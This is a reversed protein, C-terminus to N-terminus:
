MRIPARTDFVLNDNLIRCSEYYNENAIPVVNRRSPSPKQISAVSFWRSYRCISTTYIIDADGICKINNILTWVRWGHITSLSVLITIIYLPNFSQRIGKTIVINLEWLAGSDRCLEIIWNVGSHNQYTYLHIYFFSNIYLMCSVYVDYAVSKACM